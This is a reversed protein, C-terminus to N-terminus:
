MHGDYGQSMQFSGGPAAVFYSCCAMLTIMDCRDVDLILLSFHHQLCIVTGSINYFLRGSFGGLLEVQSLKDVTMIFLMPKM